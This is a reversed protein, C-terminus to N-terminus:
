PVRAASSASVPAGDKLGPRDLSTIVRDGNVLGGQIEAWEWNRLGVKVPRSVARGERVLLVRAGDIVAFSPVRLVRDRRDLIIEVDATMGPAPSPKGTEPAIEAEIEMTRNQEEAEEVVPALRSIRSAWVVNPYSDVTIRVPMGERLRGADREDIPASVYLRNRSLIELLPQGPAVREGVEAYRHAVVGEFPARIELHTLADEALRVAADSAGVRASAGRADAEARDRATRAEDLQEKSVLGQTLLASAREFAQGALRSASRASERAARAADRERRAEVLRTKETSEDLRLLLDGPRIESGERHPIEAIRGLTEVGLKVRSRSRVTGSESNTVVDEVAGTSTTASEVAIPRQRFLSRQLLFAAVAIILLLALARRPDKMVIRDHAGPGSPDM